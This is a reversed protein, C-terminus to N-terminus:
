VHGAADLTFGLERAVRKLESAGTKGPAELGETKQTLAKKTANVGAISEAIRRSGAEADVTGLEQRTRRMDDTRKEGREESRDSRISTKADYGTTKGLGIRRFLGLVTDRASSAARPVTARASPPVVWRNGHSQVNRASAP